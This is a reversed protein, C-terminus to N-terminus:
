IVILRGATLLYLYKEAIKISTLKEIAQVYLRIQEKYERRFHEDDNDRDTKYDLLIWEGTKSDKFLLDIIGQIFIKEGTANRFNEVANIKEADIRQSFPLERYIETANIIRQGLDSAFFKVISGVRRKVNAGQEDTFIQADIMSDIQANIDAADLRGSLDLRQMVSHMLSGFEAGSIKTKQMFNPRRYLKTKDFKKKSLEEIAMNHKNLIEFKKKNDTKIDIFEKNFNIKSLDDINLKNLKKLNEKISTIEKNINSIDKNNTQNM